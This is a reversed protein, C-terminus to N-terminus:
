QLFINKERVKEYFKNLAFAWRSDFPLSLYNTMRCLTEAPTRINFIEFTIFSENIKNMMTQLEFKPTADPSIWLLSQTWRFRHLIHSSKQM